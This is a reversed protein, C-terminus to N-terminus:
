PSKARALVSSLTPVDINAGSIVIGVSRGDLRGTAAIALLGALGAAGAGEVMNHTTRILTLCAEALADESVAVFGALTDRLTQFTMEYVGRTALGDAFTRAETKVVPSRAHWSDHIASAGKAQVAFVEVAPRLAQLAVIGGVAQSGGGVAYIVADLSPAQEIMELTLTGAGAIVDRDNTSHVLHLGDEAVLREAVLVSEDYDRGEEVLTAGYGRIAENKEPNNGHPVCITVPVGLEAGAFALGMGHNGRTAAVVGRRRADPGLNTMASLANRAKFANTPLHNEHKVWVRIGHSALAKLGELTPYRRLPTPLSLRSRIRERAAVIDDLAIPAKM